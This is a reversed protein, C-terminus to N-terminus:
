SRSYKGMLVAQDIIHGEMTRALQSSRVNGLDRFETDLAYLRFYYRHTGGPPCPGGYGIKGFSNEGQRFGPSNAPEPVVNEALGTLQAPLDYVVWHTFTGGPADPDDMILVLSRTNDPVDSWQLEPSINDGDCSFRSPIEGGETFAPSTLEM